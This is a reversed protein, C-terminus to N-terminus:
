TRGPQIGWSGCNCRIIRSRKNIIIDENRSIFDARGYGFLKHINNKAKIFELAKASQVFIMTLSIFKKSSPKLEAIM